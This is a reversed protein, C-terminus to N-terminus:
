QPHPERGAKGGAKGRIGPSTGGAPWQVRIAEWNSMMRQRLEKMLRRRETASNTGAMVPAMIRLRIVRGSRPTGVLSARPGALRTGDRAVPVGPLGNEVGLVRSGGRM